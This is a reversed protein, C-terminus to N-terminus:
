VFRCLCRIQLRVRSLPVAPLGMQALNELFVPAMRPTQVPRVPITWLFNVVDKLLREHRRLRSLFPRFPVVLLHPSDVQPPVIQPVLAGTPQQHVTVRAM